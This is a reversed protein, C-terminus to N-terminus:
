ISSCSIATYGISRGDDQQKGNYYGCPNMQKLRAQASDCCTADNLQVNQTYGINQRSQCSHKGSARFLKFPGQGGANCDSMGLTAFSIAILTFLKM